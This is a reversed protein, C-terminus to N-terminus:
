TITNLTLQLVQFRQEATQDSPIKFRLKDTGLLRYISSQQQILQIIKAPDIKPKAEFHLHGYEKGMEIKKIGLKNATLKFRTAEFLNEASAPLLGFRDILETKLERM